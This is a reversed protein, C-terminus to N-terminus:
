PSGGRAAALQLSGGPPATDLLQRAAVAVRALAAERALPALYRDILSRSTALVNEAIVVETEAPLAATILQVLALVPREDDIAADLVAGWLLARALPDALHPLM